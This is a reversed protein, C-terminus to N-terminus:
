NQLARTTFDTSATSEFDVPLSVMVTRTRGRAGSNLCDRFRGVFFGKIFPKKTNGVKKKKEFCPNLNKFGQKNLITLFFSPIVKTIRLKM